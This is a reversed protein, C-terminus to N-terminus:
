KQVRIASHGFSDSLSTGPGITLVSITYDNTQASIFSSIFLLLTFIRTKMM